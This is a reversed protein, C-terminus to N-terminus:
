KEEVTSEEDAFMRIIWKTSELRLNGNNTIEICSGDKWSYCICSSAFDACVLTPLDDSHNGGIDRLVSTFDERSFEVQANEGPLGGNMLHDYADPSIAIRMGHIKYVTIVVIPPDEHMLGRLYEALFRLMPVTAMYPGLWNDPHLGCNSIWLKSRGGLLACAIRDIKAEMSVTKAM